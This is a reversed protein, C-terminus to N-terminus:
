LLRRTLIEEINNFETYPIRLLEINNDICYQTKIKDTLQMRDFTKKANEISIGKFRVVKYHQQGDFEVCMNHDNIYFDFPLTRKNKCGDFTKEPEHKINNLELFERIRQEGKTETCKKCGNGQLHSNPKQLFPGHKPCIIYIEIKSGKYPDPYEYNKGPHVLRAKSVFIEHTDTISKTYKIIGCDPCGHGDLHDNPTQPFPGHKPCIIIIPTYNNKYPDPYEYNKDPHVLKAKSVFIEHTFRRKESRSILACDPCGHGKFHSDPIQQFVGHGSIPCIIDVPVNYGKYDVIDYIYRGKGHVIEFRKIVEEHTLKKRSM